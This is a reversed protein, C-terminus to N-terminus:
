TAASSPVLAQYLFPRLHRHDVAWDRGGDSAVVYEEELTITAGVASGLSVGMRDADVTQLDLGSDRVAEDACVVAMQAFRDMRRIERPTLGHAAPDFDVEAAIQSRFPSPDFASIRRIAPKGDVVRNWFEE